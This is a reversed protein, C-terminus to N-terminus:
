LGIMKKPLNRARGSLAIADALVSTMFWLQPYCFQNVSRTAVTPPNGSGNNWSQMVTGVGIQVEAFFAIMTQYLSTSSTKGWLLIMSRGHRTHDAIFYCPSVLDHFPRMGISVVVKRVTYGTLM